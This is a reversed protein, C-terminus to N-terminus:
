FGYKYSYGKPRIKSDLSFGKMACDDSDCMGNYRCKRCPDINSVESEIDARRVMEVFEGETLVKLPESQSVNSFLDLQVCM